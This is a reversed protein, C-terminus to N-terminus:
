YNHFTTSLIFPLSAHILIKPSCDSTYLKLWPLLMTPLGTSRWSADRNSWGCAEFILYYAEQKVLVVAQHQCPGRKGSLRFHWESNAEHNECHRSDGLIYSRATRYLDVSTKSSYIINM